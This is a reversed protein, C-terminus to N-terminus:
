WHISHVVTILEVVMDLPKPPINSPGLIRSVAEVTTRHKKLVINSKDADCHIGLTILMKVEIALGVKAHISKGLLVINVSMTM